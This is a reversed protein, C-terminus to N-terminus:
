AYIGEPVRTYNAASHLIGCAYDHEIKEAIKALCDILLVVYILHRPACM